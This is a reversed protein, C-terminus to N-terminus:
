VTKRLEGLCRTEMTPCRWAAGFYRGSPMKGMRRRRRGVSQFLATTLPFLGVTLAATSLIWAIPNAPRRAVLLAGVVAFAGFGVVLLADPLPHEGRLRFRSELWYNNLVGAVYLILVMWVAVRALLRREDRSQEAVRHSM